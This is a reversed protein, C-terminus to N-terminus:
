MSLFIYTSMNNSSSTTSSFKWWPQQRIEKMINKWADEEKEIVLIECYPQKCIRCRYTDEHGILKKCEQCRLM